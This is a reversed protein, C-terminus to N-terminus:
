WGQKSINERSGGVHATWIFRLEMKRRAGLLKALLTRPKENGLIIQPIIVSDPSIIFGSDQRLILCFLWSRM